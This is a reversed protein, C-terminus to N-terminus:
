ARNQLRASPTVGKNLNVPEGVTAAGADILLPALQEPARHTVVLRMSVEVRAHIHLAREIALPM